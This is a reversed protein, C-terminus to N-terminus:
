GRGAAFLAAELEAVRARLRENEALLEPAAAMLLLDPHSVLQFWEKHHERGPAPVALEPRDVFRELLEYGSPSKVRIMPGAGGMGVRAFSMVTEDFPREGGCLQMNKSNARYEWRWPGRTHGEFKANM